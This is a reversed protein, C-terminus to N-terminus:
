ESTVQRVGVSGSKVKGVRAVRETILPIFEPAMESGVIRRGELLAAEATTGSGLFPDLVTQGELSFARVLTRMLSLPKVTLHTTGDPGVPREDRRPKPHHLYVDTSDIYDSPYIHTLAHLHPRHQLWCVCCTRTCGLEHAAIRNTGIGSSTTELAHHNVAGVGFTSINEALTLEDELPKRALTIPEHSPRLTARRGAWRADVKGLDASTPRAPPYAWHILDRVEFHALELALSTRHITRTAGFAVVFGGPVLVRHVERWLEPGPAAHDWEAGAYGPSDNIFPRGALWNELMQQVDTTAALGYPPDTIVAHISESPIRALFDEAPGHHITAENALAKKTSADDAHANTM